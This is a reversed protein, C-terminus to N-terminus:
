TKKEPSFKIYRYLINGTRMHKKEKIENTVALGLFINVGGGLCFRVLTVSDTKGVLALLMIMLLIVMGIMSLCAFVFCIGFQVVLSTLSQILLSFKAVYSFPVSANDLTIEFFLVKKM